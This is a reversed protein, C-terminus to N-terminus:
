LIWSESGAHPLCKSSSYYASLALKDQLPSKFYRLPTRLPFLPCGSRICSFRECSQLVKLVLLLLLILIVM